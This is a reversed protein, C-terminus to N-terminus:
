VERTSTARAFVSIARLDSVLQPRRKTYYNMPWHSPHHRYASPHLSLSHPASPARARAPWGIQAPSEGVNMRSDHGLDFRPIFIIPELGAKDMSDFRITTAQRQVNGLTPGIHSTHDFVQISPAQGSALLVLRGYLITRPRRFDDFSQPRGGVAGKLQDVLEAVLVDLTQVCGVDVPLMVRQFGATTQETVPTKM